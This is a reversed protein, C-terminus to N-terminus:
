DSNYKQLHSKKSLKYNTERNKIWFYEIQQSQIGIM